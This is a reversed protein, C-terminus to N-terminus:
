FVKFWDNIMNYKTTLCSLLLVVVLKIQKPGGLGRLGASNKLKWSLVVFIGLLHVNLANYQTKM